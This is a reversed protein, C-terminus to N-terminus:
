IKNTAVKVSFKLKQSEDEKNQTICFQLILKFKITSCRAGRSSM